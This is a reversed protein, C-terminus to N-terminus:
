RFGFLLLFVPKGASVRNRGSTSEKYSDSNDTITNKNTKATTKKGLSQRGVRTQEENKVASFIDVLSTM